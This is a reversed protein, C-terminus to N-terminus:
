FIVMHNQDPYYLEGKDQLCQIKDEARDESVGSDYLYFMVDEVPAGPRDPYAGDIKEILKPLDQQALDEATTCEDEDEIPSPQPNKLRDLLEGHLDELDEIMGVIAEDRGREEGMTSVTEWFWTGYLRELAEHCTPCVEVLNPDIDIGNHRRPVLHHRELVDPNGRRCIYCDERDLRHSYDTM